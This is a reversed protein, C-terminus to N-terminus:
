FACNLYAPLVDTELSNMRRQSEEDILSYAIADAHEIYPQELYGIIDLIDDVNDKKLPNWQQYQDAVINRVAPAVAIDGALLKKFAERIRTNKPIGKTKVGRMEIGIIGLKDCVFDFWFQFTYQYSGDEACILSCGEEQAMTVAHQITELPSFVGKKIKILTPKCNYVYALGIVTDNAGPKNTALDIIIYKGEPPFTLDVTSAVLRTIDLKNAVSATEDNLVEAYFIEPHGAEDDVKFEEMLQAIPQLEEWISTGDELIAGSIFKTWSSSAKLKRLISHPTPYMNAIFVFLCGHPSKAKMATGLLWRYLSESEVASDAQERTQVDEFVMVDPRENKLNLGRVSGGAGLAALIIDRGRFGFKKLGSTDKTCGLRWDGFTRKVNPEDLMDVIDALINEALSANAAIVLIFKKKTFLLCWLIFLKILTTKGFGRPLGLALRSFDRQKVAYSTLWQWVSLFVAPYAYLYVLPTALAALFDLHNESAEIVEERSFSHEAFSVEPEEIPTTEKEDFGLSEATLSAM